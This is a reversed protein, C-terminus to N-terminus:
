LSKEIVTFIGPTERGNHGGSAPARLIWGNADHITIRQDHLSVIAMIPAGATRLAVSAVEPESRLRAAGAHDGAAIVAACSAM